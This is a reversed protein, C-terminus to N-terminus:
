AVACLHCKGRVAALEVTSRIADVWAKQEGATAAALNLPKNRAKSAYTFGFPQKDPGVCGYCVDCVPISEEIKFHAPLKTKKSLCSGCFVENCHRCWNQPRFFSFDALCTSCSGVKKDEDTLAKKLKFTSDRKKAQRL